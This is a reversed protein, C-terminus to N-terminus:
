RRAKLAAQRIAEVGKKASAIREQETAPRIKTYRTKHGDEEFFVWLDSPIAVSTYFLRSVSVRGALVERKLWSGKCPWGGCCEYTSESPDIDNYEFVIRSDCGECRVDLRKKEDDNELSLLDALTAQLTLMSM